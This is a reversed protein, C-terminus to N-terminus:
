LPIRWRVCCPRLPPPPPVQLVKFGLGKMTYSRSTTAAAVGRLVHLGQRLM